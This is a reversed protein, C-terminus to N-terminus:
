FSPVPCGFAHHKVIVFHAIKIIMQVAINDYIIDNDTRFLIWKGFIEFCKNTYM